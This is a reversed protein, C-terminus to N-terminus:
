NYIPTNKQLRSYLDQEVRARDKGYKARCYEKILQAVKENGKSPPYTVINFPQSTAGKILLRLAANYNDINVLDEEDFVPQFEATLYKADEPGVRFAMISGVNGFIAKKTEEDLQGIFQHGFTMSLRYKRAEALAKTITGTTVNHFEDIYLYFDKRQDEPLDARSFAAILIKGVIIMGLLYSNMDGLKGKSLNVILIKGGDMVERMNFASKQQSIIPRV